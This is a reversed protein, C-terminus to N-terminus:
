FHKIFCRRRKHQRAPFHDWISQVKKNEELEPNSEIIKIGAKQYNKHFERLVIANVGKGQLSKDIGILLLDAETNKKLAKLLHIFGFPFLSGNAKQLAKSLSPMSIGFGVLQNAENAILTICDVRIMSFYMKVYYDIQRQTLEVVGYLESYTENVLKFVESAYPKLHKTSTMPVVHLKYRKEVLNAIKTINEPFVEPVNIRYEVWDVAKGYGLQEMMIPYYPYNYITAMTGIEEYGEILMGEYDLDTFGLPGHVATCGLEKAWGEVAKLLARPVEIDEIFDIWGFRLYNNKWTEVYKKNYIAAVRGVVKGNQYALWYKSECFDFAPNKGPNLTAAEDFRLKPINYPNGKYLVYPFDLFANVQKKSTVEQIITEM